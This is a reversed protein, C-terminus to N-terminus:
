TTDAKLRVGGWNTTDAKLRVKGLRRRNAPTLYHM